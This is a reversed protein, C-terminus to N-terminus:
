IASSVSHVFGFTISALEVACRFTNDDIAVCWATLAVISVVVIVCSCFGAHFDITLIVVANPLFIFM